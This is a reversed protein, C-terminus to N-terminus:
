LMDMRNRYNYDKGSYVEINEFNITKILNNKKNELQISYDIHQLTCGGCKGYYKCKAEM